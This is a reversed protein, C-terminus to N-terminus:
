KMEQIGQKLEKGGIYIKINDFDISDIIKCALIGKQFKLKWSKKEQKKKIRRNKTRRYIQYYKDHWLSSGKERALFWNNDFLLNDSVIGGKALKHIQM